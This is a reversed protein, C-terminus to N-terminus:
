RGGMRGLRRASDAMQVVRQLSHISEASITINFVDGGGGRIRSDQATQIRSGRPLTVLEPGNEGLWTSGGEFYPTGAAHGPAAWPTAAANYIQGMNVMSLGFQGLVSNYGEIIGNATRQAYRYATDYQDLGQLQENVGAVTASMEETLTSSMGQLAEAFADKGEEVRQFEANLEDIKAGGDEVISALIAASEESGDSLKALLGEDVGMAAAAALNESYTSMYDSQSQLAAIMDDVSQTVTTDMTEFLGMTKDLGSRITDYEEEYAAALERAKEAFGDSTAIQEELMETHRAMVETAAEAAAAEDALSVAAEDVAAAVDSAASAGATGANYAMSEFTTSESNLLENVGTLIGTWTEVVAEKVPAWGTGLTRKLAESAQKERQLADDLDGLTELADLDLVAGMRHAEDAFEGIADAGAEILPNLDRASKGFIDMAKADRETENGMGGLADLVEGFVERADRLSGDSNTIEVGLTKFAEAAAGTGGRASDMNNILKTMSGTLTGMDVDVLEAMYAYEQLADTSLGTVSAQTLIDDAYEASEVALEDMAKVVKGAVAVAAAGGAAMTAFGESVQAVGNLSSKIGEPLSLGFKGALDDISDGLGVTKSNLQEMQQQNQRLQGNLDYLEAEAHNLSAAWKMTRSDGEGYAEASRKVAERLTDVKNQQEVIKRQLIDSKAALAEMGDANEAYQATVLKMESNLLKMDNNIESIAQRYEREGGVAFDTKIKPM